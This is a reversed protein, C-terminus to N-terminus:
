CPGMPPKKLIFLHKMSQNKQKARSLVYGEGVAGMLGLAAADGLFRRRGPVKSNDDM